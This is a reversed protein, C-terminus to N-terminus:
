PACEPVKRAPRAVRVREMASAVIEGVLDVFARGQLSWLIPLDSHEPHMGPLPNVEIVQPRGERDQRVDVRGGDRCGLARWARVALDSAQQALADTALSYRVLTECEEKNRYTYVEADAEPNLEVELAGVARARAGTGLVGITMERGPLYEEILVSQRHRALLLECRARLDHPTRLVSGADVGKSTGEAVPKAFLPWRLDLRELDAPEDVLLFAPTPIGRDRLVHKTTAKHLTVACALPDSFTYPIEYADLLAPIQAERGLGFRGEAINFALGFRDGRALRGVLAHANGVRLTEHGLENLAGELRDITDVRDFEALEEEPLGLGAYDDRLDYTLGVRLRSRDASKM